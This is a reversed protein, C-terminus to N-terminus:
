TKELSYRRVLDPFVCDDCVANTHNCFDAQVQLLGQQLAAGRLPIHRGGFLRQRVFKLRSNDQGKPWAFYREEVRAVLGDNGAATARAHLWPLIVNVAIDHLRGSGLLPQATAFRGSHFTWHRSWYGDSAALHGLLAAAPSPKKPPQCIWDDLWTVFDRKALWYAALALRREPRNAPRLGHFTWTSLPLIRKALRDRDRWWQDWLTRLYCNTLKDRDLQDPLLGGVGLLRALLVVPEPAQGLGRQLEPLLEALRRMAWNNQKYGLATFLGEWLAQEWTARGAVAGMSTAKAELRARAAQGLLDAAGERPLDRLPASCRGRVNQPTSTAAQGLATALQDISADLQNRLEIVPLGSPGKAGARWVVHLGVSGFAPNTDHGHQRWGNSLVDVEIDCEFPKANGMQVLARRFDPGAELNLFGPHLIAARRGDSARLDSRRIRQRQWIAQLLQEPPVSSGERFVPPHAQKHWKEYLTAM